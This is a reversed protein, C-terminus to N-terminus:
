GAPGEQGGSGDQGVRSLRYLAIGSAVALNLSDVDGGIPIRVHHDAAASAAASLGAGESGLLLALRHPSPAAAFEDLERASGDPTLAVLTFGRMRLRTLASPWESARDTLRAFPVRLTAAMSTRIAKRYLPDCSAPDLLVADAGFAAANRFVGGVNDANTVGELALVLHARELAADLSVPAPRTVLALCGRHVDYGTIGLFEDAECVYVPIDPTLTSLVPELARSAADSVLVSQVAYRREAILREVVLRGEAVFVGRQRLLEADPVSQYATVRPDGAGSIRVMRM